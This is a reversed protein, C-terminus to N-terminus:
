TAVIIKEDRRFYYWFKMKEDTFFFLFLSKKTPLYRFNTPVKEDSLSVKEDPSVWVSFFGGVPGFGSLLCLKSKLEM